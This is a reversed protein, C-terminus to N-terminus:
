IVCRIFTRSMHQPFVAFTQTIIFFQVDHKARQSYKIYTKYIIQKVHSIIILIASM